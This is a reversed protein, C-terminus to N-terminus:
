FFLAGAGYTVTTVIIGAIVTGIAIAPVARKLQMDMMAAVLSGMWAGGGPLPIAAIIVLGWFEYKVVVDKHEDAKAELKCVFKDLGDSMKRLWEFVMRTFKVLIPVPAISGLVALIFAAPISLGAIVGYPIAGRLEIIPLMAMCFTIIAAKLM